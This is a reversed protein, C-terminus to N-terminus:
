VKSWHSAFREDLAGILQNLQDLEHERALVDRHLLSLEMAEEAGLQTALDARFKALASTVADREAVLMGRFYGGQMVDAAGVAAGGPLVGPKSV